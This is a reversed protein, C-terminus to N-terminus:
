VTHRDSCLHHSVQPHTGVLAQPYWFVMLTGLLAASATIGQHFLPSLQTDQLLLDAMVSDVPDLAM